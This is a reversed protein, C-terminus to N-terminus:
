TCCYGMARCCYRFSFFKSRLSIFYRLISGFDLMWLINDETSNKISNQFQTSNKHNLPTVEEPCNQSRFAYVLSVSLQIEIKHRLVSWFVSDYTKCGLFCNEGDFEEVVHIFEAFDVVVSYQHNYKTKFLTQSGFGLYLSVTLSLFLM